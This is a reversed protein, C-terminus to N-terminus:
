KQQGQPLQLDSPRTRPAVYLPAGQGYTSRARQNITSFRNSQMIQGGAVPAYMGAVGIAVGAVGFAFNLVEDVNFANAAARATQDASSPAPGCDTTCGFYGKSLRGMQREPLTTDSAQALQRMAGDCNARLAEYAATAAVSEGRDAAQLFQNLQAKCQPSLNATPNPPAPAPPPTRPVSTGPGAASLPAPTNTTGQDLSAMGPIRHKQLCQNAVKTCDTANTRHAEVVACTSAQLACAYVRACEMFSEDQARVDLPPSCNFSITGGQSKWRGAPDDAVRVKFDPVSRATYSPDAQGRQKYYTTQLEYPSKQEMEQYLKVLEPVGDMLRHRQACTGLNQHYKQASEQFQQVCQQAQAATGGTLLGAALVSIALARRKGWIEVAM